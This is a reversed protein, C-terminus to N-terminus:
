HELRPLKSRLESNKPLVGPPLPFVPHVSDQHRHGIDALSLGLPSAYGLSVGIQCNEAKGTTGRASTMAVGIAVPKLRIILPGAISGTVPIKTPTAEWVGGALGILTVMILWRRRYRPSM